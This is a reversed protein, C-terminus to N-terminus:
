IAAVFDKVDLGRLATNIGQNMVLSVEYDATCYIRDDVSAQAAQGVLASHFFQFLACFIRFPQGVEQIVFQRLAGIAIYWRM